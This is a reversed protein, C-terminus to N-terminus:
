SIVEYCKNFHHLKTDSVCVESTAMSLLKFLRPRHKLPSSKLIAYESKSTATVPSQSLDPLQMWSQHTASSRRGAQNTTSVCTYAHELSVRLGLRTDLVYPFLAKWIICMCVVTILLPWACVLCRVCQPSQSRSCDQSIGCDGWWRRLSRFHTSHSTLGQEIWDLGPSLRSSLQMLVWHSKPLTTTWSDRPLWGIICICCSAFAHCSVSSSSFGFGTVCRTLIMM